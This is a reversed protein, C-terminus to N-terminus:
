PFMLGSDPFDFQMAETTPGQHVYSQSTHSTYRSNKRVKEQLAGRATADGTGIM